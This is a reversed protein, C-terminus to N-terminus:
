GNALKTTTKTMGCKTMWTPANDNNVNTYSEFGLYMQDKGFTYHEGSSM